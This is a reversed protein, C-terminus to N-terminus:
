KHSELVKIRANLADIEQAQYHNRYPVYTTFEFVEIWRIVQQWFATKIIPENMPKNMLNNM